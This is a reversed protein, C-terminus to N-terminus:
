VIIKFRNAKKPNTWFELSVPICSSASHDSCRSISDSQNRDEVVIKLNTSVKLVVLPQDNPIGRHLTAPLRSLLLEVKSKLSAEKFNKFAKSLANFPNHAATFIKWQLNKMFEQSLIEQFLGECLRSLAQDNIYSSLIISLIISVVQHETKSHFNKRKCLPRIM